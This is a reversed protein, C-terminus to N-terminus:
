RMAIAKRIKPSAALSGTRMSSAAGIAVLKGPKRERIFPSPPSILSSAHRSSRKNNRDVSGRGGALARERTAEGLVKAESMEVGSRQVARRSEEDELMRAVRGIRRSRCTSGTKNMRPQERIWAQPAFRDRRCSRDDGGKGADTTRQEVELPIKCGM